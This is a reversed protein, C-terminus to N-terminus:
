TSNRCSLHVKLAKKFSANLVCVTSDLKKCNVCFNVTTSGLPVIYILNKLFWSLIFHYQVQIIFRPRDPFHKRCIKNPSLGHIQISPVIQRIKHFACLDLHGIKLVLFLISSRYCKLYTRHRTTQSHLTRLNVKKM